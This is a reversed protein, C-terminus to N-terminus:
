GNSRMFTRVEEDFRDPSELNVQHGAEPLLVLTSGPIAAHMEEAVSRSSRLDEEGYLLLTPVSITSLLDRLDAEAMALLMPRLGEPRSDAMVSALEDALEQPARETLLSPIYGNVWEGAPREIQALLQKLRAAVEDTGLSGAWGAYAAALVLGCPIDPRRRYLELALTSGWSLGVVVPHDLGTGEILEALRDAYDAMRYTQPPDSSKGCGPADWAVIKFADSLTDVQRSWERHDSMGGHLLVMPPGSGRLEYALTLGGAVFRKM